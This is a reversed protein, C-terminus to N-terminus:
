RRAPRRRRLTRGRGGGGDVELGCAEPRRARAAGLSLPAVGLLLAWGIGAWAARWGSAAVAAGVAPFAAMFGISMVLAYIGM